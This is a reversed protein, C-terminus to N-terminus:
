LISEVFASDTGTFVLVPAVLNGVPGISIGSNAPIPISAGSNITLSGGITSHAAIGIVRRNAAVTITGSAEAQYDWAGALVPLRATLTADKALGTEPATTPNAVTVTGRLSGDTLTANKALGTEPNATPNAVTVPSPIAVRQRYVTGVSTVVTENDIARDGAPAQQVLVAADAVPAV